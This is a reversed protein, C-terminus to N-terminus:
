GVCFPGFFALTVTDSLSREVIVQVRHGDALQVAKGSDTSPSDSRQPRGSEPSEAVHLSGYDVDASDSILPEAVNLSCYASQGTLHRASKICPRATLRAFQCLLK